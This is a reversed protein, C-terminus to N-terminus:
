FPFILQFISGLLFGLFIQFLLKKYAFLYQFLYAFGKTEKTTDEAQHFAPTPELLLAIGVQENQQTSSVWAKLFDAQKLKIKGNAPDAIHFTVGGGLGRRLLSPSNAGVGREGGAASPSCLGSRWESRLSSDLLLLLKIYFWM